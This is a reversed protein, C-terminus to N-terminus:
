KVVQKDGSTWLVEFKADAHSGQHSLVKDNLRGPFLRDNNPISIRLLSSHFIASQLEIRVQDPVFLHLYSTL